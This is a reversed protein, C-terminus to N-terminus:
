RRRHNQLGKKEAPNRQLLYLTFNGLHNNRKQVSVVFSCSKNKLTGHTKKKLMCAIHLCLHRQLLWRRMGKISIYQCWLFRLYYFPLLSKSIRLTFTCGALLKNEITYFFLALRLFTMHLDLCESNLTLHFLITLCSSLIDVSM